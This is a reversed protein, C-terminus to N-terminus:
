YYYVIRQRNQPPTLTQFSISSYMIHSSVRCGSFLSGFLSLQFNFDSIQFGFVWFGSVLVVFHSLRVGFGFIQFNCGFDVFSSHFILVCFFTCGFVVGLFEQFGTGFYPAGSLLVRIGWGRFGLGKVGDGQFEALLRSGGM